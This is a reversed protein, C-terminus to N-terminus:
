KQLEQKIQDTEYEASRAQVYGNIDIEENIMDRVQLLFEQEYRRAKRKAINSIAIKLVRVAERIERTEQEKEKKTM